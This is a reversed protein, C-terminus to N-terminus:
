LLLLGGGELIINGGGELAIAPPDVSPLPASNMLGFVIVIYANSGANSGLTIQVQNASVIAINPYVIASSASDRVEVQVNDVGLGHTITFVNNAGTVTTTDVFKRIGYSGDIDVQLANSVIAVGSGANVKLAGASISLGDGAVSADLKGAIVANIGVESATIGSLPVYLNNSGNIGISSGNTNVSLGTPSATLADSGPLRVSIISGIKQLGNGAEFTGAGSFQSYSLGNTAVVDSGKDSTCVWGSDSQTAGEEIFMFTGAAYSSAAYDVARTWVGAAVIYVGNVIADTQNKVLVRDGIAVSISDIPPTGSLSIEEITAVRVSEKIDLGQAVSDVYRKNAVDQASTPDGLNLLITNAVNLNAYMKPM